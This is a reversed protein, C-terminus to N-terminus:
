TIDIYIHTLSRTGPRSASQTQDAYIIVFYPKPLPLLSMSAIIAGCLMNTHLHNVKTAYKGIRFSQTNEDYIDVWDLIEGSSQKGGAVVVNKTLPQQFCVHGHRAM